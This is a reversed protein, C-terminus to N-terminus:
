FRENNLGGQNDKPEYLDKPSNDNENEGQTTASAIVERPKTGNQPGIVGREELMDVLKAARSYGVGLKRQLFSTSAKGAQLVTERAEGYKDDDDSDSEMVSSFINDTNNERSESDFDITDQLKEAYHKILWSTLKKLEEETVFGSQIRSPKGMEGGQYLMDGKGLLKEAGAKDIITRSDIQSAVQLAIRSPINAKILGTIVRVDPRQTSLILHIGVARSMQALRVIAAELEKPYASMIDALEDIIIVIYPMSEPLEDEVGSEEETKGRKKMKKIAPALVNKHYSEINQAKSSELVDYRREMEKAAWKLALIAKKANKIVPTLLHPIDNYLTLEVRKPDVLIFKLSEPPNRYLLSAILMHVTVSKGAGTAGAVLLHPMKALDAFEAQGGINKGLTVLLAKDSQTFLPSSLLTALGVTSKTINPIEIGVLSRGPIPAEVRITRASLSAQIEKQLGEIRSLKVGEAPKLAYRTVTPGVSIEDMEVDIGFNRLTRKILNANAKVDGVSPKGTDKELLTLPPPTFPTGLRSADGMLKGDMDMERDNKRGMGLIGSKNRKEAEYREQAERAREEIIAKEASMGAAPHVLPVDDEDEEEDEERTMRFSDFTLNSLKIDFLMVFSVVMVGTLLLYTIYFDFSSLLPSSIINGILGGQEGTAINIIGLGSIFFLTIGLTKSIAFNVEIKRWFAISLFLMSLPLLFYGFGFLMSLARFTYGGAVGALGFGALSFFAALIFFLMALIAQTVHEELRWIGLTETEEEEKKKKKKKRAMEKLGGLQKSRKKRAM